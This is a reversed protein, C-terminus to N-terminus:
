MQDTLSGDRTRKITVVDGNEDVYRITTNDKDDLVQQVKGNKDLVVKWYDQSSDYKEVAENVKSWDGTELAEQYEEAEKRNYDNLSSGGYTKALTAGISMYALAAKATEIKQETASGTVGDRFAEHSMFLDLDLAEKGDMNLNIM